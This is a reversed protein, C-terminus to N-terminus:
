SVNRDLEGIIALMTWVIAPIIALMVSISIFTRAAFFFLWLVTVLFLFLTLCVIMRTTANRRMNHRRHHRRTVIYQLALILAANDISWGLPLLLEELTSPNVNPLVAAVLALVVYFLIATIFAALLAGLLPRGFPRRPEFVFALTALAFVAGIIGVLFSQSVTFAHGLLSIGENSQTTKVCLAWGVGWMLGTLASSTIRMTASHQLNRVKVENIRRTKM